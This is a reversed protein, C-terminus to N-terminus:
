AGLYCLARICHMYMTRLTQTQEKSCCFSQSKNKSTYLLKTSRRGGTRFHPILVMLFSQLYAVIPDITNISESDLAYAMKVSDLNFSKISEHLSISYKKPVVFPQQHM